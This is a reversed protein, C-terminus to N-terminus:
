GERKKGASNREVLRNRTQYQRQIGKAELSGRRRINGYIKNEMLMRLSMVILILYGTLQLATNIKEM